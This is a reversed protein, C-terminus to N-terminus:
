CWRRRSRILTTSSGRSSARRAGVTLRGTAFVFLNVAYSLLTLGLLVSFTRERLLLYVGAATLVGIGTAILLEMDISGRDCRGSDLRIRGGGAPSPQSPPLSRAQRTWTVHAGGVSVGAEGLRTLVLMTAGVVALYVGLDFAMASALPVKGVVPWHAYGHASTLFPGDLALMAAIGTAGAILLGSAAM